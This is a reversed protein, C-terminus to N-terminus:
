KNQACFRVTYGMFSSSLSSKIGFAEMKDDQNSVIDSMMNFQGFEEITATSFSTEFDALSQQTFPTPKGSEFFEDLTMGIVWNSEIPIAVTTVVQNSSSAASCNLWIAVFVLVVKM